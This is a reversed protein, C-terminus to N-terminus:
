FLNDFQHWGSRIHDYDTLDGVHVPVATIFGKKLWASECDDSPPGMRLVSGLWYYNTGEGPHERCEPEEAWWDKSQKTLKIGKYPGLAKEPFNVNLFTGKPMPHELIHQIIPYVFSAETNYDPQPFYDCSSFAVAPLNQMTSEIAGAVTGSYLIGLGLNSGRNIGAIVIDPMKDLIVHIALKICDSPTGTVSWVAEEGEDWFVKNIHLPHRLTSMMGVSSQEAAPAVVSVNAVDKLARWLHRIGPAYVGDDNTILIHLKKTNM